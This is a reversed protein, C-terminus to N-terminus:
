SRRARRPAGAVGPRRAVVRRSARSRSRPSGSWRPSRRGPRGDAGPRERPRSWRSPARSPDATGAVTRREDAPESRSSTPRFAEAILEPCARGPWRRRSARRRLRDDAAAGPRPHHDRHGPRRPAALRRSARLRLGGSGASGPGCCSTPSGAASRAASSPGSCTSSTPRCARSSSSSSTASRGRRLRRRRGPAEHPGQGRRQRRLQLDTQDLLETAQQIRLDGKGKEEGISLLAVRPEAVGLVRESFIAGMRAYQALNEPSSDPNAGIDLLVLTGADTILQVALAPGISAPCVGSVSSRPPWGPAPTAPPSSPTRRAASSSIPRSSSRRTRRRASPAARPARGDRRGRLRPRDLRQGPADGAIRASRRARRRRPHGSGRPHARAHDLAGPVVETPGHDGGM